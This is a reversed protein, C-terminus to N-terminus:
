PHQEIAINISSTNGSAALALLNTPVDPLSAPIFTVTGDLASTTTVAQTALLPAPSCVGHAPCPPTWAYLAQYLSVSGGAMPNGDMDLLRLVIQSPTGQVSLSQSVGSVAELYAYEPRASFATFAVCQSTGNLCANISAQQGEALPGVTLTQTAIGSSTTLAATSGQATIGTGGTQWAVTQGSMPMGNSLVLAQVTWTFMAGAALSLQPTLSALVPPMGGVFEAKLSSGNTLSATVISWSGDVATINMSARGDGTANVSCVPLGCALTATGSVVTYTVTVGSAPTLNPDLATVSFPLPV